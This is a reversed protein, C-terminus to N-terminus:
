AIKVFRNPHCWHATGPLEEQTAYSRVFNLNCELGVDVHLNGASDFCTNKCEYEKGAELKPGRDNGPLITDFICKLKDGVHIM